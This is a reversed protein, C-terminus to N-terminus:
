EGKENLGQVYERLVSSKSVEVVFQDINRQLALSMAKAIGEKDGISCASSASFSGSWLSKEGRTGKLELYVGCVVEAGGGTSRVDFRLVEGELFVGRGRMNRASVVSSFLGSGRVQRLVGLDGNGFTGGVM